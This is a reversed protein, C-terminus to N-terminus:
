QGTAFQVEVSMGARLGAPLAELAITTKYVVDGGLTDALPAIDSVHGPAEQNLAKISVTVPQGIKIKPVDRESLDTTGVRLHELDSLLLVPQGPSVWESVHIRLETVTGSFPARLELDALASKAAAWHAEATTVRAQALALQDPDPGTQVIAYRAQADALVAAAVAVKGQALALETADPGKQAADLNAIATDYKEQAKAAADALNAQDISIRLQLALQDNLKSQYADWAEDMAEKLDPASNSADYKAKAEEWRSRYWNTVFVATNYASVNPDVNALQLNAQANDLALKADAVADVQGQGAPYQANRLERQTKELADQAQAVALQAQATVLAATDQLDKLAQRANLLELNAAEVDAALKESGALTVLVQGAQVQDGVAVSVTAVRGALTSAMQVEQAPVVVGSATVGGSFGQPSAPSSANGDGLVVTPLAPASTGGGANCAALATGMLLILLVNLKM